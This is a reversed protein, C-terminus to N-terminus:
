RQEREEENSQPKRCAVIEEYLGTLDTDDFVEGPGLIGLKEKVSPIEFFPISRTYGEPTKYFYHVSERAVDDELYNLFVANHTTVGIQQKANVFEKLLFGILEPNIGNEIEDFLLFPNVSELQALFAILRLLGDNAYQSKVQYTLNGNHYTDGILLGKLNDRLVETKLFAFCPYIQKLKGTINARNNDDLEYLFAALNEGEFGISGFSNTANQKLFFPTLLGFTQISKIENKFKDFIPPVNDDKLQSFISGSYSFNIKSELPKESEVSITYKGPSRQNIQNEASFVTKNIHVVEKTCRLNQYDFEGSWMGEKNTDLYFCIDFKITSDKNDRYFPLANRELKRTQLWGDMNGKMLQSLFDMFQLFTSKGCGNLGIFCNFKALDIRFDVLSKFNNVYISKIRM